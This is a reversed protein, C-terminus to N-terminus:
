KKLELYESSNTLVVVKYYNRKKLKDLSIKLFSSINQQV